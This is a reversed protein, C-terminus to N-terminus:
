FPSHQFVAHRRRLSIAVSSLGFTSVLCFPLRPNRARERGFFLLELTCEDEVDVFRALLTPPVFFDTLSSGKFLVRFLFDGRLLGYFFYGNFVPPSLAPIERASGVPFFFLHVSSGDLM